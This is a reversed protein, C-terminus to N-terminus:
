CEDMVLPKTVKTLIFTGDKNDVWNLEDNEKWGAQELLDDPLNIFYETEMPDGNEVEEVPLRWRVVKDKEQKEAANCMANLEEETYQEGSFNSVRDKTLIDNALYELDSHGWPPMSPEYYEKESLVANLHDKDEKHLKVVVENWATKFKRDFDELYYQLFEDAAYM